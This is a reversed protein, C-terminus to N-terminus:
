SWLMTGVGWLAWAIGIVILWAEIAIALLLLPDKM